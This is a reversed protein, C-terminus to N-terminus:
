GYYEKAYGYRLLYKNLNLRGVIITVLWRGFKGQKEAKRTNVFTRIKIVTGVPLKEEVLAKVQKGEDTYREPTNIGYLRVRENRFSRLGLDIHLDLTDGDIVRRVTAKYEYM